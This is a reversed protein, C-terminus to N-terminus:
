VENSDGPVDKYYTPPPATPVESTVGPVPPVGYFKSMDQMMPIGHCVPLGSAQTLHVRPDGTGNNEAVFSPQAAAPKSCRCASKCGYCSAVISIFFELLLLLLLVVLMGDRYSILTERFKLCEKHKKGRTVCNEEDFDSFDKYTALDCAYIIIGMAAVLASLINMVLSSNVLCRTGKKEASISLGGSIFFFVAAWFSVGTYAAISHLGTFSLIGGLFVSILGIMIQVVGMSKTEGKTVKQLHAPQSVTARQHNATSNTTPIYQTMVFVGNGAPTTAM